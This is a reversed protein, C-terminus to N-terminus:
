FPHMALWERPLMDRLAKAMNVASEYAWAGVDPTCLMGITVWTVPPGSIDIVGRAALARIVADQQMPESDDGLRLVQPRAHMILNRIRMLLAFDQFPQVGPDFPKGQLGTAIVQIKLGLQANREDIEGCVVSLARIRDDLPEQYQFDEILENVFGELAAASFLIAILPSYHGYGPDGSAEQAASFLFGAWAITARQTDKRESSAM